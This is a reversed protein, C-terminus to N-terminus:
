MRLAIFCAKEINTSHYFMLKQGILARAPELYIVKTIKYIGAVGEERGRLQRLQPM